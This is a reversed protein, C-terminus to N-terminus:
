RILPKIFDAYQLRCWAELPIVVGSDKSVKQLGVALASSNREIDERKASKKKWVFEEGFLRLFATRDEAKAIPVNKKQDSLFLVCVSMFDTCSESDTIASKLEKMKRKRIEQTWDLIKPAWYDFTLSTKAYLSPVPNAYTFVGKKKSETMAIESKQPLEEKEFNVKHAANFIRCANAIQLMVLKTQDAKGKPMANVTRVTINACKKDEDRAKFYSTQLENIFAESWIADKPNSMKAFLDGFAKASLKWDSCAKVIAETESKNNRIASVLAKSM